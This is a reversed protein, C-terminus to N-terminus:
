TLATLLLLLLLVLMLLVSCTYSIAAAVQQATQLQKAKYAWSGQLGAVAPLGWQLKVHWM